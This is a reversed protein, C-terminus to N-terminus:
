GAIMVRLVISQVGVWEESVLLGPAKSSFDGCPHFRSGCRSASTVWGRQAGAGERLFSRADRVAGAAGPRTGGDGGAAAAAGVAGCGAGEKAAFQLLFNSPPGRRQRGREGGGGCRM